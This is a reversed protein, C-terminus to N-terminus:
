GPFMFRSRMFRGMWRCTYKKGFNTANVNTPTLTVENLNAGDGALDNKHMLVASGTPPPPPTGSQVTITVPTKIAGGCNDWAQVVTYHTGTSITLSTQLTAGNTKYALINDVYVGIAAIGNACAATTANASYTVPSSVTSNNAPSSVNVATPNQGGVTVTATSSVKGSAGTATATYTTTATPTVTQQGGSTPLTYNTGNSGSITVQTANSAAVSLVSSGGASITTPSASISVSATSAAQVTITVPTKIAGGCNDWAQVVTYHTGASIALSTQLTAGNIKYALVNDVYVGTAAIGNACAATTAQASFTVPSSVTSNNAPSTVVVATPNGSQGGVTINVPVTTSGGCGDWEQVVTNYSGNSLTVNANLSAGNQVIVRQNNVYIGMASVGKSCTSTATAAYHVPSSVSSSNAPSTVTINAFAPGALALLM